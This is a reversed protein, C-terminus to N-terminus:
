QIGNGLLSLSSTVTSVLTNTVTFHITVRQILTWYIRNDICVWDIIVSWLFSVIRGHILVLSFEM